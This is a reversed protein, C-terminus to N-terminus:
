FDEAANDELSGNQSEKIAEKMITKMENRLFDKIQRKQLTFENKMVKKM